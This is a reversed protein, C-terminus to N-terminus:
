GGPLTRNNFLDRFEEDTLEKDEYEGVDIATWTGTEENLELRPQYGVLQCNPLIVEKVFPESECAKKVFSAGLVGSIYWPQGGLVGFQRTVISSLTQFASLAMARDNQDTEPNFHVARNRIGRLERFASTTDPLLVGWGDLVDIATKWNDFSAKRSVRRYYETGTYYHRLALVLHNLVREGLACCGVLCPYYAGVVFADRAQELFRNHFALVSFPITGIEVFNQLKVEADSGGYQEILGARVQAKNTAHQERVRPEWDERIEMALLLARTDFHHRLVMYRKM